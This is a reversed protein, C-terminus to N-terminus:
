PFQTSADLRTSTWRRTVGGDGADRRPSDAPRAVDQRMLVALDVEVQNRRSSRDGTLVLSGVDPMDAVGQDGGCVVARGHALAEASAIRRCGALTPPSGDRRLIARWIGISLCEVAAFSGFSRRFRQDLDKTGGTIVGASYRMPPLASRLILVGFAGLRDVRPATASGRFRKM